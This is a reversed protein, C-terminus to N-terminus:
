LGILITFNYLLRFVKLNGRLEDNWGIEVEDKQHINGHSSPSLSIPKRTDGNDLIYGITGAFIFHIYRSDTLM